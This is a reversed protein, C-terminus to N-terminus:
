SQRPPTFSIFHIVDSTIVSYFVEHMALIALYMVTCYIELASDEELTSLLSM